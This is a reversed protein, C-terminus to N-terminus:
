SHMYLYVAYAYICLIFVCMYLILLLREHKCLLSLCLAANLVM